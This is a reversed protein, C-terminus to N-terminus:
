LIIEALDKETAKSLRTIETGNYIKAFNVDRTTQWAQLNNRLVIRWFNKSRLDNFDAAQVIYGFISNRKQFSIKICQEATIKHTDCFKTILDNTM